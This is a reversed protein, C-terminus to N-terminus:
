VSLVEADWDFIKWPYVNPPDATITVKEKKTPHIFSMARCHLAISKDPMPYEAGYKLDGIIPCGIKSLQARIQHPRGTEPMVELLTKADLEGIQHYTLTAEKSGSKKSAYARTYNKETDKILFHTLKGSLEDPRHSCIALYKKQILRDRMLDNMRTLAKSTRAFIVVGSVPRDIRHIVGLFVDGDKQYRIKIYQQVLEKLTIDGTADSQVLLGAPKNVAILHNDEYIVVLDKFSFGSKKM